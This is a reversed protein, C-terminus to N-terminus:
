GHSEEEEEMEDFGIDRLLVDYERLDDELREIWTRSARNVRRMDGCLEGLADDVTVGTRAFFHAQVVAWFPGPVELLDPVADAHWAEKPAVRGRAVYACFRQACGEAYDLADAETYIPLYKWGSM